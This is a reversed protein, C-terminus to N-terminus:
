DKGKEIERRSEIVTSRRGDGGSGEWSDDMALDRDKIGQISRDRLASDSRLRGASRDTFIKVRRDFQPLKGRAAAKEEASAKFSSM